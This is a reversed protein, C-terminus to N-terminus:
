VRGSYEGRSDGSGSPYKFGMCPPTTRRAVGGWKADWMVDGSDRRGLFGEVVAFVVMDVM